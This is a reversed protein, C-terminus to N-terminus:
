SANPSSVRGDPGSDSKRQRYLVVGISIAALVAVAILIPVVPSSSGGTSKSTTAGPTSPKVKQGEGVGVEPTGGGGGAGPKNGGGGGGGGTTSPNKEGEQSSGEESSGQGGVESGTGGSSEGAGVKAGSGEAKPNNSSKHEGSTSKHHVPKTSETEVKPVGELEYNVCSATSCEAQAAVPFLVLALLALV